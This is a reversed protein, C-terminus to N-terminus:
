VKQEKLTSWSLYGLILASIALGIDMTLSVRRFPLSLLLDLSFLLLLLVAVIMGIICLAKSM